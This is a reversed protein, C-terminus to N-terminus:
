AVAQLAADERRCRVLSLAAIAVASAAALWSALALAGGGAILVLGLESPHRVARYPGRRCRAGAPAIATRFGAGLTAIAWVRLAAGVAVVAIGAACGHGDELAGAVQGGLLLLGTPLALAGPAPQDVHSVAAEAVAWAAIVALLLLV